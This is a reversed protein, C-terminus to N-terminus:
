DLHTTSTTTPMITYDYTVTTTSAYTEQTRWAFLWHWLHDEHAHTLSIDQRLETEVQLVHLHM